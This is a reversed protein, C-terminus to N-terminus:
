RHARAPRRPMSWMRASIALAIAVGRASMELYAGFIVGDADRDRADLVDDSPRLTILSMMRPGARADVDLVVALTAMAEADLSLTEILRDLHDASV